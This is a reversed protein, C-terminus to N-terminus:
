CTFKYHLVSLGTIIFSLDQVQSERLRSLTKKAYYEVGSGWRTVAANIDPLNLSEPICLASVKEDFM